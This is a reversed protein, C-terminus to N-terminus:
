LKATNSTKTLNVDAETTKGASIEVAHTTSGYKEHWAILQYKGPPVGSLTFSGDKQAKTFHPNPVVVIYASMQSHIDCVVRIIEPKEFVVEFAKNGLQARNFAQNMRCTTHVNHLIADSNRIQVKAGALVPLVHPVFTIDRQDLVPTAMQSAGGAKAAVSDGALYVVTDAANIGKQPTAGGFRIHGRLTGTAEQARPNTLWTGSMASGLLLPLLLPRLTIRM